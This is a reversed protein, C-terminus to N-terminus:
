ASYRLDEGGCDFDGDFVFDNSNDQRRAALLHVSEGWQGYPVNNCELYQVFDESKDVIPDVRASRQEESRHTM